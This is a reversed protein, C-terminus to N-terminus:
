LPVAKPLKIVYGDYARVVSARSLDMWGFNNDTYSATVGALEYFDAVSVIRYQDLIDNMSELVSEAEGRSQLIVDDYAYSSRSHIDRRDEKREYYNRYSIKSTSSKKTKGTEGYLIMDIGNTVIDSIAKKLAPVLVDMFIYDKVNRVDEQILVDAFKHLESKKKVKATGSVVKEITKKTEAEKQEAKFKNSNPKYEEM